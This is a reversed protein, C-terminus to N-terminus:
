ERPPGSRSPAPSRILKTTEIVDAAVDSAVATAHRPMGWAVLCMDDSQPRDGLFTLVDRVIHQGAERVVAPAAALRERLQAAGFMKGGAGAAETFGDTYAVWLDGREIAVTAEQYARGPILGLAPGRVAEAVAEVIGDPRRRLPAPHGANVLTMTMSRRDLIAVLLTVFRGTDGASLSDNMQAFATAPAKCSLHYKLEGALKAMMLAASVGKGAADAVVLALRQNPLEIFDYYDGGVEYAARYYAYFKFGAYAPYGEPLLSMQVQRALDLDRAIAQRRVAEEHLRSYRVAVAAQSVAGGMVELDEPTFASQPQSTDIQVVGFANGDGDLLPACMMSHIQLEELTSSHVGGPDQYAWLIAERHSLVHRVVTRSLAVHQKPDSHRFHTAHPTVDEQGEATFAVFGSEAEPFIAFLGELLERLTVNIDLSRGLRKLMRVLAQFKEPSYGGQPLSASPEPVAVSSFPTPAEISEDVSVVEAGAAPFSAAGDGVPETELFTFEVGAIALRDGNQLPTRGTLRQGNLFTGNRSGRDEVLYRGAVLELQAHYRSVGNNEAFIDAIDCEAHRGLVCRQGLPYVWKGQHNGQTRVLMAM